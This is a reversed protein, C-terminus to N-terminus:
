PAPLRRSCLRSQPCGAMGDETVILAAGTSTVVMAPHPNDPDDGPPSVEDCGAPVCRYYRQEAPEDGADTDVNWRLLSTQGDPAAAGDVRFAYIPEPGDVRVPDSLDGSSSLLRTVLETEETGPAPRQYTLRTTGAEDLSGFAWSFTDVVVRRAPSWSGAPDRHRVFMVVEFTTEDYEHWVATIAGDATHLVKTAIVPGNEYLEGVSGTSWARLPGWTLAGDRRRLVAEYLGMPRDGHTRHPESRSPHVRDDPHPDHTVLVHVRGDAGTWLGRLVTYHSVSLGPSVAWRKGRSRVAVKVHWNGAIGAAVVERDAGVIADTARMSRAYPFDRLPGWDGTGDVRAYKEGVFVTAGGGPGVAIPGV